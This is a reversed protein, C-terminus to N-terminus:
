KSLRITREVGMIRLTYNLTKGNWEFKKTSDQSAMFSAEMTERDGQSTVVFNTDWNTPTNFTGKWYLAKTDETDWTIEITNDVISAVMKAGNDLPATWTGDFNFTEQSDSVDVKNQFPQSAEVDDSFPNFITLLIALIIVVLGSAILLRNRMIAEEPTTEFFSFGLEM